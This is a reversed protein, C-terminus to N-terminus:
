VFRFLVPSIHSLRVAQLRYHVSRCRSCILIGVFLELILRKLNLMLRAAAVAVPVAVNM